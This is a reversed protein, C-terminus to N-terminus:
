VKEITQSHGQHHGTRMAAIEQVGQKTLLLQGHGTGPHQPVLPLANASLQLCSGLGIHANGLGAAFFREVHGTGRGNAQM